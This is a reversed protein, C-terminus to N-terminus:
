GGSTASERQYVCVPPTKHGMLGIDYLADGRVDLMHRTFAGEFRLLDDQLEKLTAGCPTPPTETWALIAGDDDYYVEHIAFAFTGDPQTTRMVRHNWSM